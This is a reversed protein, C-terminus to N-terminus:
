QRSAVGGYKRDIEESVQKQIQDPNAGQINFVNTMTNGSNEVKVDGAASGGGRFEKFLGGVVPIKDMPVGATELLSGGVGIAGGALAGWPGFMGGVGAGTLGAMAMNNAWGPAGLKEMGYGVGQGALAGLGLTGFAGLPGIGGPGMTALKGIMGMANMSGGAMAWPLGAAGMMPLTSLAKGGVIAVSIAALAVMIKGMWDGFGGLHNDFWDHLDVFKAIIYGGVEGVVQAINGAVEVANKVFAEIQPAHDNIWKSMDKSLAQSWALLKTFLGSQILARLIETMFLLGVNLFPSLAAMLLDAFAGVVKNAAGLYASTVQSSAVIQNIGGKIIELAALPKFISLFSPDASRTGGATTFGGAPPGGALPPGGPSAAAMVRQLDSPDLVMRFVVEDM